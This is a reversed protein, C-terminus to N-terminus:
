KACSTRGNSRVCTSPAGIEVDEFEKALFQEFAKASEQTTFSAVQISM